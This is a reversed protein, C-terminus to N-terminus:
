DAFRWHQHPKQGVRRLTTWKNTVVTIGAFRSLQLYAPKARPRKHGTFGHM